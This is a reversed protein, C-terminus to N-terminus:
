DYYYPDACVYVRHWRWGWRTWVRRPQYCSDYAAYAGYFPAGIFGRHFRHHRGRWMGGTGGSFRTAGSVRPSSFSPSRVTSGGRIAAAGSSGGSRVGAGGGRHAASADTPIQALAMAASAALVLITKRM